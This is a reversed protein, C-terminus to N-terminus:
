SRRFYRILFYILAVPLLIPLLLGFVLGVVKMILLVFLFTLLLVLWAPLRIVKGFGKKGFSGKEKEREEMPAAGERGITDAITRAILRPDGLEELVEEESRGKKIESDIYREYYEVNENVVAHSARGSLAKRLGETFEFRTMEQRRV